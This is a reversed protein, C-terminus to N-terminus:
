PKPALRHLQIDDFWLAHDGGGEDGAMLGFYFLLRAKSDTATAKFDFTYDRWATTTELSQSLFLKRWGAHPQEVVARLHRCPVSSRARFSLRYWEGKMINLRKIHFALQRHQEVVDGRIHIKLAGGEVGPDAILAGEHLWLVLDSNSFGGDAVLNEGAPLWDSVDEQEEPEEQKPMIYADKAYVRVYDIEMRASTNGEEPLRHGVFHGGVALNLIIHFPQDFPAPRPQRRQGTPGYTHWDTSPIAGMLVGNCYWRMGLPEWELAYVNFDDCRAGDPLKRSGIGRAGHENNRNGFHLTGCFADADGATEMIDIEGCSPWPGYRVQDEPMLWFAPWYGRGVPLKIRAEFRGYAQAFKGKTTVAGSTYPMGDPATKREALLTLRGDSVIAHSPSYYSKEQNSYSAPLHSWNAADLRDGDFTEHWILRWGDETADVAGSVPLTLVRGISLLLLVYRLRFRNPLTNRKNKM